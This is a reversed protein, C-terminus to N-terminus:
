SRLKENRNFSSVDNPDVELSTLEKLRFSFNLDSDPFDTLWKDRHGWSSYQIRVFTFVDHKFRDDNKWDPVGKRDVIVDPRVERRWSSRGGYRSGPYQAILGGVAFLLAVTTI